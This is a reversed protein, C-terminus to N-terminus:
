PIILLFYSGITFFPPLIAARHFCSKVKPCEMPVQVL